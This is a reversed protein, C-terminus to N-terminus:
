LIPSTWSPSAVMSQISSSFSLPMVMVEATVDGVGFVVQTRTEALRCKSCGAAVVALEALRGAADETM